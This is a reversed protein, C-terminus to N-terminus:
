HCNRALNISHLLRILHLSILFCVDLSMFMHCSLKHLITLLPVAVSSKMFRAVCTWKLVRPDSCLLVFDALFGSHVLRFLMVGVLLIAQLQSTILWLMAEVALSDAWILNLLRSNLLISLELDNWCLGLLLQPSLYHSLLNFTLLPCHVHSGEGVLLSWLLSWTLCVDTQRPNAQLYRKLMHKAAQGALDDALENAERPLARWRSASFHRSTNWIMWYILVDWVAHFRWTNLLLCFIARHLPTRLLDLHQLEGYALAVINDVLHKCAKVEAVVNNSCKALGISRWCYLQVSDPYVLYIGYGAGGVSVSAHCGGDFQGLVYPRVSYNLASGLEVLDGAAVPTVCRLLFHPVTCGVPTLTANPLTSSRQWHLLKLLAHGAPLLAALGQPLM